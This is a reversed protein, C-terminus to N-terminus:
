EGSTITQQPPISSNSDVTFGSSTTGFPDFANGSSTQATTSAFPDVGALTDYSPPPEAPAQIWPDVLGLLSVLTTLM